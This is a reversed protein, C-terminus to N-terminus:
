QERYYLGIRSDLHDILMDQSITGSFYLDLEEYIVDQIEPPFYRRPTAKELLQYLLTEDAKRDLTNGLRIEDGFGYAIARTDENLQDIQEQLVDKRVSLNFNNDSMAMKQSEYSLLVQIFAYALLKEEQTANNRVALPYNSILYHASGNLSPYGIYNIQEGYAMRYLELQEPRQVLLTNCLAKGEPYLDGMAIYEQQNYYKDALELADKFKETNFDLEGTKENLFYSDNMNKMLFNLIFNRKDDEGYSNAVATLGEANKIKSIFCEYDWDTISQNTTVVTDLYFDTVIGYMVGDIEGLRIASENLDPMLELQELVGNLPAWLQKKTEFQTLSTDVLVPGSGAILETNLVTTDYDTKLEIHCTPYKRQFEYVANAYKSKLHPSVALTIEQMEVQEKVPELCLYYVDKGVKCILSVSKDDKIQIKEVDTIKLGHNLWLYIPKPNKMNLDALYLGSSNAYLVTKEDFLTYGYYRVNFSEEATFLLKEEGADVDYYRVQTIDKEYKEGIVPEVDVKYGVNGGFIAVLRPLYYGDDHIKHLVEGKPSVVYYYWVTSESYYDSFFEYESTIVHFYGNADVMMQKVMESGGEPLFTLPVEKIVEWNEDVELVLSKMKYETSEDYIDRIIICHNSGLIEGVYDFADEYELTVAQQGGSSNSINILVHNNQWQETFYLRCFSAQSSGLVYRLYDEDLADADDTVRTYLPEKVVATYSDKTNDKGDLDSLVALNIQEFDVLAEENITSHSVNGNQRASNTCSCLMSFAITLVLCFAITRKM